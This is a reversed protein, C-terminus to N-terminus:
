QYDCIDIPSFPIGCEYAAFVSLIFVPSRDFALVLTEGPKMEHLFLCKLDSFVRALEDKQLAKGNFVIETIQHTDCM